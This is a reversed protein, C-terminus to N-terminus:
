QEDAGERCRQHDNERLGNRPQEVVRTLGLPLAAERQQRRQHQQGDGEQKVLVAAIGPFVGLGVVGFQGGTGGLVPGLLELPQHREALRQTAREVEFGNLNRNALMQRRQGACMVQPHQHTFARFPLRQRAVRAAGLFHQLPAVEGLM